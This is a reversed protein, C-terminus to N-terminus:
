LIFEMLIKAASTLKHCNACVVQISDFAREAIFSTCRLVDLEDREVLVLFEGCFFKHHRVLYIEKQRQIKLNSVNLWDSFCKALYRGIM